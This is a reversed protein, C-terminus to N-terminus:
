DYVVFESISWWSSSSGTQAVRIHRVAARCSTRSTWRPALPRIASPTAVPLVSVDPTSATPSSPQGAAKINFAANVERDHHSGCPCVWPRSRSRGERCGEQSTTPSNM